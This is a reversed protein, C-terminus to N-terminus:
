VPHTLRLLGVNWVGYVSTSSASSPSSLGSRRRASPPHSLAHAAVLTGVQLTLWTAFAMALLLVALHQEVRVQSQEWHWGAAKFDRFLTEIAYRRRYLALLEWSPPLDSVLLLPHRHTQGWYAVVSAERWGQKKFVRGRGKCRRVTPSLLADLRQQRGTQTQYRTQGQVRVVYHWGYFQILDTFRPTGFARDALWIVPLAPPLLQAVEDLLIAVREWFGAGDLPQNGPWLLWVLPLSRGRYVVSVTLLVWREAQMTPDIVLLLRQPQGWRLYHRAYQHFMTLGQALRGENEWRRVQREVSETEGLGLSSLSAAIRSPRSSQSHLIGLVLGVLARQQAATWERPWYAALTEALAQYLPHECMTDWETQSSEQHNVM